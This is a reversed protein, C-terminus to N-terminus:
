GDKLMGSKAKKLKIGLVNNNFSKSAGQDNVEVPLNIEEHYKKDISSASIIIKKDELKFIIDELRVGPLEMTINLFDDEDFIDWFVQKEKRDREGLIWWSFLVKKGAEPDLKSKEFFLISNGTIREATPNIHEKIKLLVDMHNPADYVSALEDITAHRNQWLYILIGRGDSDLENAIKDITEENITLLSREYIKRRWNEVDKVAIWGKLMENRDTRKESNEHPRRYSIFLVNKTRLIVARKELSLSVINNLLAQFIVRSPQSLLLRKNTLYFRGPKWGSRLNEKLLGQNSLVVDEDKDLFPEHGIQKM